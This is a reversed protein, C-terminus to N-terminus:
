SQNSQLQKFNKLNFIVEHYDMFYFLIGTVENHDPFYDMLYNICYATMLM